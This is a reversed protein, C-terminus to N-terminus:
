MIRSAERGAVQRSPYTGYKVIVEMDDLTVKGWLCPPREQLTLEPLNEGRRPRVNQLQVVLWM